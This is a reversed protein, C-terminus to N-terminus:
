IKVEVIVINVYKTHVNNTKKLFKNKIMGNHQSRVTCRTSECGILFLLAFLSVM